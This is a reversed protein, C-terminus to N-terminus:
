RIIKALTKFILGLDSCFNARQLYERNLRLKEPMIQEIYMKEPDSAKGLLENEDIYEISAIDTIGPRVKLVAKQEENYMEVYHPVEPRPGVFSMDGLFVNILQPLEDIKYKRLYYGISTIRPDRGGVTIQPGLKPAEMKMTRFKYIKFPTGNLGVRVQRFFVSGKDSFVIILAIVLFLPSLVILAILSVLLDFFRKM